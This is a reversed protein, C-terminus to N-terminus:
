NTASRRTGPSGSARGRMGSRALLAPLKADLGALIDPAVPGDPDAELVVLFRAADGSGAVFIGPPLARLRRGPGVVAGIGPQAEIGEQLASLAAPDGVGEGEVVLM